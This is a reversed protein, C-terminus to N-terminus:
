DMVVQLYGPDDPRLSHISMIEEWHYVQEHEGNETNGSFDTPKYIVPFNFVIPHLWFVNISLRKIM